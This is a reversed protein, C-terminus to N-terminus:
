LQMERKMPQIKAGAAFCEGIEDGKAEFFLVRTFTNPTHWLRGAKLKQGV